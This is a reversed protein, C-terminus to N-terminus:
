RLLERLDDMRRRSVRLVKNVPQDPELEWEGESRTRLEYVRDLNVIYSRHM